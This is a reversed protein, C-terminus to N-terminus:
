KNEESEGDESIQKTDTSGGPCCHDDSNGATKTETSSEQKASIEDTKSHIEEMREDTYSHDPLTKLWRMMRLYTLPMVFDAKKLRYVYLMYHYIALHKLHSEKILPNKLTCLNVWTSNQCVLLIAQYIPGSVFINLPFKVTRVAKLSM